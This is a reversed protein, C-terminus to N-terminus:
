NWPPEKKHPNPTKVSSTDWDNKSGHAEDNKAQKRDKWPFEKEHQAYVKTWHALTEEWMKQKWKKYNM